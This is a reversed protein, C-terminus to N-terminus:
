LNSSDMTTLKEAKAEGRKGGPMGPTELVGDVGEGDWDDPPVLEWGWAEEEEEGVEEEEFVEEEQQTPVKKMHVAGPSVEKVLPIRVSDPKEEASPKKLVKRLTLAEASDRPSLTKEIRKPETPDLSKEEEVKEKSVRLSPTKQLKVGKNFIDTQKQPLEREADKQLIVEKEGPQPVVAEEKEGPKEGEKKPTMTKEVKRLQTEDRPSKRKPIKIDVSKKKEEEPTKETKEETKLVKSCPKLLVEQKEKDPRVKPKGCLKNAASPEEPEPVQDVKNRLQIQTQDKDVIHGVEPTKVPVDEHTRDKVAASPQDRQPTEARTFPTRKTDTQAEGEKQAKQPEAEEPKQPKEFPKLTVVEQEEEKKPLKKIKKKTLDPEPEEDKPAKPTRIWRSNEDEAEPQEPEQVSGLESTEEAATFVRERRSLTIVERDERDRLKQVTLETDYHRTTDVKHTIVEKEPEKPKTPVKKLQIKQPEEEPKGSKEFPKLKISEKPEDSKPLKTIKKKDVSPRDSEQEKQPKITRTWGEKETKQVVVVREAEEFHRLQVTEEEATFLRDTRGLTIVERDERDHLGHAVLEPDHRRTVEAKHTEVQKEPEPPKVPIKKLKVM